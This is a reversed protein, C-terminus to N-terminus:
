TRTKLAEIYKEYEFKIDNYIDTMDLLLVFSNGIKLPKFCGYSEHYTGLKKLIFTM